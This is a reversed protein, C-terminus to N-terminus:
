RDQGNIRKWMEEHSIGFNPDRMEDRRRVVEREIWDPIPIDSENLEDWLWGILELKEASSLARLEERNIAMLGM